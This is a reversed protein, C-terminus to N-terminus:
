KEGWKKVKEYGEPTCYFRRKVNEREAEAVFLEGTNIYSNVIEAFEPTRAYRRFYKLVNIETQVGGTRTIFDILQAGVGALENRGIGTTLRVIAPELREILELGIQLHEATMKTAEVNETKVINLAVKLTQMPKTQHFQRLIPDNPENNRQKHYWEEWWRMAVSDRKVGGTWKEARKLHEIVRGLAADAGPPKQPDPVVKTRTSYVIIMRRGLGGSFLDIKLNSMFWEPVAGAILSIHPNHFWQKRNPDEIRDKKLGTSFRKGDYDQTLFQVMKVKDVSLFNNLEDNLIYFPRYEQIRGTEDKWTQPNTSTDRAMLFAIDERSQISASVMLHPFVDVMIDMNVGLCTNKGSGADGVLCVYLNPTFRFYGGHEVWCKHGLVHGLISLGGWTLYDEPTENGSSFYIYDSLFSM